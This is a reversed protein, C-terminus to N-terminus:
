FVPVDLKGRSVFTTGDSRAHSDDACKNVSESVGGLYQSSKKTRTKASVWQTNLCEM